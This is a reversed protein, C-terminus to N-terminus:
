IPQIRNIYYKTSRLCLKYTIRQQFKLWHLRDRLLPTVHERRTGGYLLRASANLISQMRNCQRQTVGAFVGNSYDLRSVVFSNVLTKVADIPLSRRISKLRRLQNFCTSVTRSVHSSMSLDCDITLGLLKVSSSPNVSVGGIVFPDDGVLHRQQPTSCWMIDTGTPSLRLRNTVTWGDIDHLCDLMAEHLVAQDSPACSSYVQSDDACCHGMMSHSRIIDQLGAAYLICHMNVNRLPVVRIRRYYCRGARHSRYRLIGARAISDLVDKNPLFRCLRLAYLKCLRYKYVSGPLM